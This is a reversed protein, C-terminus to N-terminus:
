RGRRGLPLSASAVATSRTVPQALTALNIATIDSVQCASLLRTEAELWIADDRGEPQGSETWLERACQAIEDHSPRSASLSANM